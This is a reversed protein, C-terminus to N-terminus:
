PGARRDTFVVLTGTLELLRLVPESPKVLALDAGTRRTTEAISLLAGLGTSDVFDVAALDLELRHVGRAELAHEIELEFRFAASMDLEGSAQSHVVGDMTFTRSTFRPTQTFEDGHRM